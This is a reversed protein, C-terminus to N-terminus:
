ESESGSSKIEYQVLEFSKDEPPELGFAASAEDHEHEQTLKVIGVNPALWITTLSTGKQEQVGPQEPLEISMATEITADTRYEIVLCDEFTGADTEVTETDTVNGIEVYTTYSTVTQNADGAVEVPLGKIDITLTLTVNVEIATWEENFTAPTPLLYFYDQSKVDVEYDIDVSIGMGEPIQEQMGQRLFVLAEDAEQITTAKVANEVETGVFYAVWDDGIQYYYPHIYHEFDIWDELGPDYTFAHYTEGDIEDPEIAYRTLTDGNHDEYVWYSGLADPFYYDAWENGMLTATCGFILLLILISQIKKM